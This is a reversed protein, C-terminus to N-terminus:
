TDFICKARQAKSLNELYEDLDASANIREEHIEEMRKKLRDMQAKVDAIEAKFDTEQKGSCFPCYCKM